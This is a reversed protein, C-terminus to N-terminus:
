QHMDCSWPNFGGLIFHVSSFDAFNVLKRHNLCEYYDEKQQVCKTHQGYRGHEGFCDVLEQWFQFCRGYDGDNSVNQSM